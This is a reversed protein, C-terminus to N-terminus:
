GARKARRAEAAEIIAYSEKLVDDFDVSLGADLEALGAAEDLIIAGEQEAYHELARRMVTARDEKVAAAVRDLVEILDEPLDLEIQLEKTAM